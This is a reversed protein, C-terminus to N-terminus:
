IKNIKILKNNIEKIIQFIIIIKSVMFKNILYYKLEKLVNWLIKIM